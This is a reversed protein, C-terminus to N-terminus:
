SYKPGKYRLGHGFKFVPNRTDYPVDCMSDLVAQQSRPLDFPLKGEPAAKGFLVDLFAKESSGFNGFLATAQEAIEPIAAPRDLMVDVITPVASYIEAQRMKETKNFEISGAHFLSEFWGPRPEYPAELRLLAYDADQPTDVVTMNWKELFTAIFGEVYFRTGPVPKLPLTNNNNVLLTYARRQADNVLRRFYENGVIAEAADADVFREDDFLDLLFKERLIKRVSYDLRKETIRGQGVLKIVLETRTEGGFMDCGANLIKEVREIESLDEVGWAQAPLEPIKGDTILGWDSTVIGEYGLEGKLLDTIIGQNYAFGVPEYKTGIPRSYYPMIQRAGAEIAAEFPKLFYNFNNGPYSQNKGYPFHSDEGNEMAGGGPFHKTVTTVSGKGFKPKQFGRIYGKVLRSTLDADEGFTNRIRAWRPETALDVQPHLASRIGVAVHEERAIDAFKEVLEPDGLAALGLSEAWESFAGAFYGTGVNETFSHRPDTALTIPIGLRTKRAREQLTNVFSVASRVNKISGELTFHTMLNDQILQDINGGPAVTGNEALPIQEHFLQGVKEPITMRTLLDEVRQDTLQEPDEYIPTDTRPTISGSEGVRAFLAVLILLCGWM